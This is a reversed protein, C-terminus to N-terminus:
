SRMAALMTLGNLLDQISEERDLLGGFSEAVDGVPLITKFHHNGLDFDVFETTKPRKSGPQQASGSIRYDIYGYTEGEILPDTAARSVWKAGSAEGAAAVLPPPTYFRVLRLNEQGPLVHDKLTSVTPSEVLVEIETEDETVGPAIARREGEENVIEVYFVKM